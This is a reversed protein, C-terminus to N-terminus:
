GNKSIDFLKKLKAKLWKLTEKTQELVKGTKQKNHVKLLKQLDDPYRTPVSLGNLVFIFDYMKEPLELRIKEVLYILNHTKPPVENLNLTFLGKLAKEIALHCMFVAYIYRKGDFMAEATKMDYAAQKLWEQPKKTDGKLQM